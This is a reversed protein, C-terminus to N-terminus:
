LPKTKETVRHLNQKDCTPSSAKGFYSLQVLTLYPFTFDEMEIM